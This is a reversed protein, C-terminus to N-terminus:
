KVPSASSRSPWQRKRLAWQDDSGGYSVRSRAAPDGSNSAAAGALCCLSRARPARSVIRLLDSACRPLSRRAPRSALRSGEGPRVAAARHRGGHRTDLRGLLLRAIGVVVAHVPSFPRCAGLVVRQMRVIGGLFVLRQVLGLLVVGCRQRAELLRHSQIIRQRFAPVVEAVRAALEAVVIVREGGVALRERELGSIGSASSYRPSAYRPNFRM